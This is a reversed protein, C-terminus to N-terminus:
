TLMPEEEPQNSGFMMLFDYIREEDALTLNNEDLAYIAEIEDFMMNLQAKVDIQMQDIEAQTAGTLARIESYEIISDFFIDVSGLIMTQNAATLTNNLVEVIAIGVGLDPSSLNENLIFADLDILDAENLLDAKLNIVNLILTNVFPKINDFTTEFTIDIGEAELATKLPLRAADLLVDIEASTVDGFIETDIMHIDNILQELDIMMQVMDTGQNENLAIVTKIIRAETDIVYRLASHASDGLLDSLAKYTDFELKLEDLMGLIILKEDEPMYPDNEIQYIINEIALVFYYEEYAPTILAELAAIETAYDLNFQDIYDIVYLAFDILVVPNNEFDYYDYMEDYAQDLIDMGGTILTEDIDGIFDLFLNISAHSIQGNIQAYQLGTTVDTDTLGGSIILATEYLLEFDAAAPLANQLMLVMEDKIILGETLTLADGNIAGDILDISNQPFTNKVTILFEFVVELSGKFQVEETEMLVLMENMMLNDQTDREVREEAYHKWQAKDYLNFLPQLETYMNNIFAEGDGATDNYMATMIMQLDMVYEITMDDEFYYYEPHFNYGYILSSQIEEVIYRLEHIEGSFFADLGDYEDVTAYSKMLNYADMYAQSAKITNMETEYMAIEENAYTLNLTNSRINADLMVILFEYIMAALDQHDMNYDDLIELELLFDDLGTMMPMGMVMSKADGFFQIAQSETMGLAISTQAYAAAMESASLYDYYEWEDEFDEETMDPEYMPNIGGLVTSYITDQSVNEEVTYSVSASNESTLADKKAVVYVTHTGVPINKTTLDLQTTTVSYSLSGVHVVYSTADTVATWSVVGANIQVNTPADITDVTGETVEYNLVSSPISVKDDKAAVVSVAYTGTALELTTLDFTTTTVEYEAEDVFVVYHDADTVADWTLIGDTIDLNQPAELDLDVERNCAALGFLFTFLVIFLLIKKM